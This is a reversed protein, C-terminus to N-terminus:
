IPGFHSGPLLGLSQCGMVYKSSRTVWPELPLLLEPLRHESGVPAKGELIVLEPVRVPFRRRPPGGNTQPYFVLNTDVTVRLPEGLAEFYHREYATILVPEDRARLLEAQPAPLARSLAAVIERIELSALAVASRLPFREKALVDDTRRKVEFFFKTEPLPTDYWRLRLKSRRPTGDLNDHCSSLLVDDFYLSVVRSTPQEYSVRRCNVELISRFKGFDVHPLAFKIERRFTTFKDSRSEPVELEFNALHAESSTM